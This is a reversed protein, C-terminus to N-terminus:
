PTYEIRITHEGAELDPITLLAGAYESTAVRVDDVYAKFCSSYPITFVLDNRNEDTVNVHGTVVGGSVSDATFRGENIENYVEELKDMNLAYLYAKRDDGYDYIDLVFTGNEYFNGLYINSARQYGNFQSIGRDNLVISINDTQNKADYDLESEYLLEFNLYLNTGIPPEFRLVKLPMPTIVYDGASDYVQVGDIVRENESYDFSEYVGAEKGLVSSIFSNQNAFPDPGFSCTDDCALYGIGLSYPNHYLSSFGNSYVFDYGYEPKTFYLEYDIGLLMDTVIDSGRDCSKYHYQLIGLEKYLKLMDSNYSSSFYDMGNFSLLMPDNSTIEIDKNIRCLSVGDRELSVDYDQAYDIMDAMMDILEVYSSRTSNPYDDYVASTIKYGNFVLLGAVIVSAAAMVPVKVKFSNISKSALVIMFFVFLFAFRHPYAVPDRFMHWVRYLPRFMFSLLFLVIIAISCVSNARNKLGKIIGFIGLAFIIVTFYIAPAGESYLSGFHGCIFQKLLDPFSTVIFSGNSYVGSDASKGQALEKLVPILLPSALLAGFISYFFFNLFRLGMDKFDPKESMNETLIFVSYMVLFVCVMYASYYHFYMCLALSVSYACGRKAVTNMEFNSQIISRAEENTRM